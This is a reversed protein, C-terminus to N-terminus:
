EQEYIIRYNTSFEHLANDTLGIFQPENDASIQATVVANYLRSNVTVSPLILGFKNDILNYVDEALGLAGPSDKDRTIVQLQFVTYKLWANSIGGSQILNIHRDQVQSDGSTFDIGNIYIKESINSKIYEYINYIM